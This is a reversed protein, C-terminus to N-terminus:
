DNEKREATEKVMLAELNQFDATVVTYGEEAKRNILTILLPYGTNCYTKVYVYHKM